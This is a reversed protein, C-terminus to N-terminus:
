VLLLAPILNLFIIVYSKTSELGDSTTATSSPEQITVTTTSSPRQSTTTTTSSPEQTTTTTTSSPRQSTTTTTTTVTTTSNPRSPQFEPHLDVTAQIQRKLYEVTEISNCVDKTCRIDVEDIELQKEQPFDIYYTARIRVEPARVPNNWSECYSFFNYTCNNVATVIYNHLEDIYCIGNSCSRQECLTATLDNICNSCSYCSPTSSQDNILQDNLIAQDITMKFSEPLYQALSIDTCDDWDCGYGISSITTPLWFTGSRSISEVAQLFHSDEFTDPAVAEFARYEIAGDYRSIMFCYQNGVDVLTCSSLFTLSSCSGFNTEWNYECSCERCLRSDVPWNLLVAISCLIIVLKM